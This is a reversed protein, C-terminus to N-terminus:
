EPRRKIGAGGEAFWEHLGNYYDFEHHHPQVEGAWEGVGKPASTNAAYEPFTDAWLKAIGRTSKVGDVSLSYAGNKATVQKAPYHRTQGNATTIERDNRWVERTVSNMMYGPYNPLERWEPRINPRENKRAKPLSKSMGALRDYYGDIADTSYVVGETSRQVPWPLDTPDCRHWGDVAVYGGCTACHAIRPAAGTPPKPSQQYSPSIDTQRRKERLAAAAARAAAFMADPRPGVILTSPTTKETQETQEAWPDRAPEPTLAVDINNRRM